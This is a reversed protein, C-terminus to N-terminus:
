ANPVEPTPTEATPTSRSTAPEHCVCPHSAWGHEDTCFRCRALPPMWNLDDGRENNCANCALRLNKIQNSGGQSAPKVHEITPPVEETFRVRCYCCHDGDRLLLAQVRRRRSSDSM